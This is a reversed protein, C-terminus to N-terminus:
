IEALDTKKLKAQKLVKVLKWCKNKSIPKCAEILVEDGENSINDVDSVFLKTKAKIYKKYKPHSVKREIMVTLTKDMKNSAVIGIMSQIIKDTKKPTISLNM